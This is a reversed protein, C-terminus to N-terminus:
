RPLSPPESSPILVSLHGTGTVDIPALSPPYESTVSMGRTRQGSVPVLPMSDQTSLDDIPKKKGSSGFTEGSFPTKVERSADTSSGRSWIRRYVNSLRQYPHFDMARLLPSCPPLNAAWVGLWLETVAWFTPNFVKLVLPTQNDPPPTYAFNLRGVPYSVILFILRLVSAGTSVSGLFFVFSTAWKKNSAMQLRSIYFFPLGLLPLDTAVSTVSFALLLAGRNGCRHLAITQDFGWILEPHSGCILVDAITFVVAWIFVIWILANNVRRFSQWVGFIRRYFFLISLKVAGFGAKEIVIMAWDIQHAIIVMQTRENPDKIAEGGTGKLSNYYQIGNCTIAVALGFLLLYDDPGLAVRAFSLRVWLRLATLAVAVGMFVSYIPIVTSPPYYSM